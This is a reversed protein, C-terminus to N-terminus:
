TQNGAGTYYSVVMQSELELPDFAERVETPM